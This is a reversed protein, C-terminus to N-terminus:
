VVSITASAGAIIPIRSIPLIAITSTLALRMMCRVNSYAGCVERPMEGSLVEVSLVEVGLVKSYLPQQM